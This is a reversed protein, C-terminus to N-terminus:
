LLPSLLKAGQIQVCANFLCNIILLNYYNIFLHLVNTSLNSPYVPVLVKLVIM